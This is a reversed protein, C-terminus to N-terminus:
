YMLKKKEKLEPNEDVALELTGKLNRAIQRERKRQRIAFNSIAARFESVSERFNSEDGSMLIQGADSIDEISEFIANMESDNSSLDAFYVPKKSSYLMELQAREFTPFSTYKRLKRSAEKPGIDGKSVDNYISKIEDNWDPHEPIFIDSKQLLERTPM